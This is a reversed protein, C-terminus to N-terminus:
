LGSKFEFHRRRAANSVLLKHLCYLVASQALFQQIACALSDESDYITEGIPALCTMKVLFFMVLKCCFDRFIGHDKKFIIIANKRKRFFIRLINKKDSHKCILRPKFAASTRM